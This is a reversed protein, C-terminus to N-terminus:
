YRFYTAFSNCTCSSTCLGHLTTILLPRSANSVQVGFAFRRHESSSIVVSRLVSEDCIISLCDVAATVCCRTVSHALGDSTSVALSWLMCGARGNQDVDAEIMCYCRSSYSSACAHRIVDNGTRAHKYSATHRELRHCTPHVLRRFLKPHM